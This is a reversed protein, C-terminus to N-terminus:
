TLMHVSCGCVRGAVRSFYISQFPGIHVDNAVIIKADLFILIQDNTKESTHMLEPIPSIPSDHDWIWPTLILQPVLVSISTQNLDAVTKQM